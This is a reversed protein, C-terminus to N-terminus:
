LGHDEKLYRVATRIRELTLQPDILVFMEPVRLVRYGSILLQYDRERDHCFKGARSHDAHGDIEIILKGDPWVLDVRPTTGHRTKVLQNFRFLSGLEADAILKAHLRQEADSGPHPKGIVAGVSVTPASGERAAQAAAEGERISQAPQTFSGGPDPEPERTQTTPKRDASQTKSRAADNDNAAPGRGRKAPASPTGPKTRDRAVALAGYTVGDLESSHAFADPVVMVVRAGSNRAVWEAGKGFAFLWGPQSPEISRVLLEIVLQEPDLALSLQRVRESSTLESLLPLRGERCCELIREVALSSTGRMRSAAAGLQADREGSAMSGEDPQQARNAASTYLAPYFTLAARALSAATQEFEEALRPVREWSLTVVTSPPKAAGAWTELHEHM